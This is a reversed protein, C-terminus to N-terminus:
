SRAGKRYGARLAEIAWAESKGDPVWLGGAVPVWFYQEVTTEDARVPKRANLKVVSVAVGPQRLFPTVRAVTKGDNVSGPNVVMGTFKERDVM